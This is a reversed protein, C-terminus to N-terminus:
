APELQQTKGNLVMGPVRWKPQAYLAQLREFNADPDLSLPVAADFAALRESTPTEDPRLMDGWVDWPLLEMNNLAAVDRVLNGAVFWLGHMDMIGFTMPDAEGARCRRWAEGGVLFQDRPVDLPNFRLKLAGRQVEDMQADGLRWRVGDWYEIVWHDVPTGDFYLGFGCRARSPIGQRRLLAVGLVSFHRCVGIVRKAPPRAAALPGCDAERMLDLMARSSRADSQAVRAPTLTEGYAGAWFQHMMLGQIVRFLGPVDRPLDEAFGAPLATMAAPELYFARIDKPTTM